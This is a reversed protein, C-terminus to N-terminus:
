LRTVSPCLAARINRSITQLSRYWCYERYDDTDIESGGKQVSVREHEQLKGHSLCVCEEAGLVFHTRTALVVACFWGWGGDYRFRIFRQRRPTSMPLRPRAAEDGGPSPVISADLKSSDATKRGRRAGRDIM